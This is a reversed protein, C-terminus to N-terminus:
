YSNNNVFNLTSVSNNIFSSNIFSNYNTGPGTFTKKRFISSSLNIDQNTTVNCDLFPLIKHNSYEVILPTTWAFITLIIFKRNKARVTEIRLYHPLVDWIKLPSIASSSGEGMIPPLSPGSLSLGFKAKKM